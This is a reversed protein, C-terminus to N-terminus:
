QKIWDLCGATKFYQGKKLTVQGPESASSIAGYETYDKFDDADDVFWSCFTIPRDAAGDTRYTGPAIHKGVQWTGSGVTTKKPPNSTPRTGTDPVTTSNPTSGDIEDNRFAATIAGFCVVVLVIMALWFVVWPWTRKRTPANKHIHPDHDM